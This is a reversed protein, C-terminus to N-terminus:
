SASPVPSPTPSPPGLDTGLVNVSANLPSSNATPPGEVWSPSSPPFPATRPTPLLATNKKVKDFWGVFHELMGQLEGRTVGGTTRPTGEEHVRVDFVEGLLKCFEEWMPRAFKSNPHAAISREIDGIRGVRDVLRRWVELPDADRYVLNGESDQGAFVRYILREGPSYVDPEAQPAPQSVKRWGVLFQVVAVLAKFFKALM